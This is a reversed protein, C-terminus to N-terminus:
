DERARVGGGYDNADGRGSDAVTWNSWWVPVGLAKQKPCRLQDTRMTIGVGYGLTHWVSIVVKRASRPGKRPTSSSAFIALNLENRKLRVPLARGTM